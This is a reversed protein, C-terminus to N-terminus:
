DGCTFCLNDGPDRAFELVRGEPGTLFLHEGAAEAKTMAQLAQLYAAEEALKDCAMKTAGLASLTIEPLEGRYIGFYRNCPAQGSVTGDTAFTITLSAPARTGDIGVLHWDGGIESALAPACAAALALTLASLLRTM